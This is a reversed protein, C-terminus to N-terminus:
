NDEMSKDVIKVFVNFVPVKRKTSLNQYSILAHKGVLSSRRQWLDIREGRSFGTGVAFVEGEKSSLLLAGLSNKPEGAISIEQQTGVIKYCDHKRPKFKMVFRSRKPEYPANVNRVIIGEYASSVYDDYASMVDDLSYAVSFPVLRINTRSLPKYTYDFLRNLRELQPLSNNVIDFVHYEILSHSPHLNITRGTISTIQDFPLGHRYLEGDLELPIDGLRLLDKNIHPVSFIINEESSLLIWKGNICQARCRVGNLKPQCIYPPKWTLLRKETFPYCKMIGKWRQYKPM